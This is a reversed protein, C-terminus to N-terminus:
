LGLGHHGVYAARLAGAVDGFGVDAGAMEADVGVAEAGVTELMVVPHVVVGAVRDEDCNSVQSLISATRSATMSAPALLMYLTSKM